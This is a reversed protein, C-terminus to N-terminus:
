SAASPLEQVREQRGESYQNAVRESKGSLKEVCEPSYASSRAVATRKQSQRGPRRQLQTRDTRDRNVTEQKGYARKAYAAPAGRPLRRPDGDGCARLPADRGKSGAGCGEPRVTFRTRWGWRAPVGAGFARELMEKAQKGKTSLRVEKPVGAEERRASDEAWGHPLYLARDIFAAGEGSAYCLFVGVQCNERKGATGTYQRAVGV